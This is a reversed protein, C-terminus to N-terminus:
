NMRRVAVYVLFLFGFGVYLGLLAALMLKAMEPTVSESRALYIIVAVFAVFSALVGVAMLWRKTKTQM